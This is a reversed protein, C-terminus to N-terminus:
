AVSFIIFHLVHQQKIDLKSYLTPYISQTIVLPLSAYYFVFCGELLQPKLAISRYDVTSGNLGYVILYM